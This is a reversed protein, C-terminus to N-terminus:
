PQGQPWGIVFHFSGREVVGPVGPEWFPSRELVAFYSGRPQNAVLHVLRPSTPLNSPVVTAPQLAGAKMIAKSGPPLPGALNYVRDGDRYLLIQVTAGLGNVVTM